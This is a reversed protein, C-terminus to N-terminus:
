QKISPSSNLYVFGWSRNFLKGKIGTVKKTYDKAWKEWEDHQEQTVKYAEYFDRTHEEPNKLWEPHNEKVQDLNTNHYKNLWWNILDETKVKKM